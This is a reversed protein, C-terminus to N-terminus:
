RSAVSMRYLCRYLSIQEDRELAQIKEKVQTEVFYTAPELILSQFDDVCDRRYIFLTDFNDDADFQNAKSM